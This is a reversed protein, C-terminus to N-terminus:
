CRKNEKLVHNAIRVMEGVTAADLIAQLALKYRLCPDIEEAYMDELEHFKEKPLIAHYNEDDTMKFDKKNM